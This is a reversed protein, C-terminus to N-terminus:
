TGVEATAKSAVSVDFVEIVPNALLQGAMRGALEYAEAENGAVVQLRIMRGARVHQVGDFGLSHLGGRIAEGEPDNVGPKPMVTVEVDWVTETV